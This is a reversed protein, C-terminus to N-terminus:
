RKADLDSYDRPWRARVVIGIFEDSYRWDKALEELRKLFDEPSRSWPLDPPSIPTNSEM